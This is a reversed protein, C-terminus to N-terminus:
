VMASEHRGDNVSSTASIGGVILQHAVACRWQKVRRQLTRLQGPRFGHPNLESLREFLQKATANPEDSLWQEILM